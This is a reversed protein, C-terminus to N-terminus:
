ALYEEKGQRATSIQNETVRTEGKAQVVTIAYQDAPSIRWPAQGPIIVAGENMRWKPSAQYAGSAGVKVDGTLLLITRSFIIIALTYLVGILPLAFCEKHPNSVLRMLKRNITM